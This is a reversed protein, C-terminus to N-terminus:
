RDGTAGEKQALDRRYLAELREVYRDLAFRRVRRAAAAVLRDRLAPDGLVALAARALGAVDGKQVVLGTEDPVVTETMGGSATVVVPTGCAAAELPVLGFPEDDITPYWVLDAARYAAPMEGRPIDLYQVQAAVGAAAAKRDLEARVSAVEGDLGVVDESRCLVLTGSGLARRVAVFAALGDLVGKWRLLRAPHFVVPRELGALAPARPGGPTFRQLDIGLHAV